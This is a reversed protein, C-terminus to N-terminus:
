DRPSPFRFTGRVRHMVVEAGDLRLDVRDGALRADAREITVGGSLAVIGRVLDLEAVPATATVGGVRVRVDGEARAHRLEGHEGTQASLKRCTIEASGRRLRVDGEFTAQHRRVDLTVRDAQVDIPAEDQPTTGAPAAGLLAGLAAGGRVVLRGARLSLGPSEVHVVDAQLQADPPAARPPTSCAVVLVLLGAGVLRM